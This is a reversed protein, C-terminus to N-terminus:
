EPRLRMEVAVEWHVEPGSKHLSGDSVMWTVFPDCLAGRSRGHPFHTESGPHDQTEQNKTKKFKKELIAKIKCEAEEVM